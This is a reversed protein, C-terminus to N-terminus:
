VFVIEGGALFRCMFVFWDLTFPPAHKITHQPAKHKHQAMGHLAMHVAYFYRCLIPRLTIDAVQCKVFVVVVVAM